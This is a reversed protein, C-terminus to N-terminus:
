KKSSDQKTSNDTPKDGAGLKTQQDEVAQKFAPFQEWSPSIEFKRFEQPLEVPEYVVRRQEDDFRVEEYGTLPFDKRFPHGEFGYDTLIRRLDHHNNFMVGFMDWIEREYWDAGKYIATASDIPTLEDTYTKIRIRANQKISLLNYVIEFRNPRAPIDVGAIDVINTFQTQHHHKLFSLVPVIGQPAICLEVENQFTLRAIQLYRPLCEQVLRIMQTAM